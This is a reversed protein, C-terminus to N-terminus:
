KNLSYIVTVTKLATDKASPHSFNLYSTSCLFNQFYTHCYLRTVAQNEKNEMM